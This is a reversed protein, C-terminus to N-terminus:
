EGKKVGANWLEVIRSHRRSCEGYMLVTAVYADGIDDWDDSVPEALRPCPTSLEASLTPREYPM